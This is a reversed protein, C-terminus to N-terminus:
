GIVTVSFFQKCRKCYGEIHTGRGLVGKCFTWGCHSCKNKVERNIPGGIYQGDRQADTSQNSYDVMM